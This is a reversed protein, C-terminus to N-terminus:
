PEVAGVATKREAPAPYDSSLMRYVDLVQAAAAPWSFGAARELARARLATRLTEDTALARLGAYIAHSDTPDVLLGADGVVEPLATTDSSLVAAGLSMAEIAPLGFGEFLSPYCFALCHAYLWALSADDLYGPRQVYREDLQLAAMQRDLDDPGNDRPGVIVLPDDSEGAARLRAYAELLRFLNKRPEASGVALWFHGAQLHGLQAPPQSQGIQGSFRSAEYIVSIRESPYHPFLELFQQRTARSVAVIHDAHVSAAFVGEFCTRWNAETTWEPHAAFALDHLTYVLRARRLTTPCYFNHSHVVAPDGLRAELDATPELWFAELQDLRQVPWELREVNPEGPLRLTSTRWTADWYGAGFTPYLLYTQSRDATVLHRALSDAFYGCGTKLRGTQSVDLGIRM